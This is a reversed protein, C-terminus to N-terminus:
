LINNKKIGQNEANVTDISSKFITFTSNLIINSFTCNNEISIKDWIISNNITNSVGIKCNSGIITNPGITSYPGIKTNEGIYAPGIIKTSHPITTNEGIYIDESQHNFEEIQCVGDFIDQQVQMYKNISGIEIWYEDSKYVAIPYGKKILLPYTEREISVVESDPIEKLVSPEFIYIGANISNAKVPLNEPKETFAKAYFDENYEIVGYDSPNEVQVAAITVAAAKEKHFKIMDQININSLIDGNLIIFTDDFFSEANKIAGGTGLPIDECIYTIKVGLKTGDGFYQEFKKAKYCTTIIIEDIGCEKLKLINRELLPKVMIPVMSKPLDNTLPKLRSGMGGALFLAKM